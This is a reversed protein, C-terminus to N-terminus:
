HFEALLPEMAERWGHPGYQDTRIVRSAGIPKVASSRESKIIVAIDAASLMAEDNPSDGLAIVTAGPYHQRLRDLAKGKDTQGCVSLFRGGQLATLDYAALSEIFEERRQATDDWRLPESFDREGARQADEFALGTMEAIEAPGGDAFGTFRFGYSARIEGLAGLVKSRPAVLADVHLGADGPTCIAAGNECIFPTHLQLDTQLAEMESRTKSSALVLPWGRQVIKEVTPIAPEMSYSDHDLLTGDLDTVVLVSTM